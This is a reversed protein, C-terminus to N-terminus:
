SNGSLSTSATRTTPTTQVLIMFRKLLKPKIVVTKGSRLYM